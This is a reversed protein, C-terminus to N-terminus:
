ESRDPIGPHLSHCQPRATERRFTKGVQLAYDVLNALEFMKWLLPASTFSRTLRRRSRVSVSRASCGSIGVGQDASSNTRCTARLAAARDVQQGVRERGCIWGPIPNGGGSGVEDDDRVAGGARPAIRDDAVLDRVDNRTM